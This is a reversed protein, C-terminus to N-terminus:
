KAENAFHEIFPLAVIGFHTLAVIKILPHTFKYFKSHNM